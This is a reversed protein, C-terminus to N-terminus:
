NGGVLPSVNEFFSKAISKVFNSKALVKGYKVIELMCKAKSVKNDNTNKSSFYFLAEM